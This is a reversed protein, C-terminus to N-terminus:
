ARASYRGAAAVAAETLVDRSECAFPMESYRELPDLTATHEFRPSHEFIEKKFPFTYKTSLSESDVYNILPGPSPTGLSRETKSRRESQESLSAHTQTVSRCVCM